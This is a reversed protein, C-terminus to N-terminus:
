RYRWRKPHYVGLQALTDQFGAGSLIGTGTINLFTPTQQVITASLLKFTFGDVDFLGPVMMSPNFQWSHPMNVQTGIPMTLDGSSTQVTSKGLNGISDRWQTVTTANQLPLDFTVAGGLGITGFIHAAQAEHTSLATTVLGAAILTLITKTLNKM